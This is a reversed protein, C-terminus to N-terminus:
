QIPYNYLFNNSSGVLLNFKGSLKDLRGISFLTSGTLPFGKQLEGKSNYLYILNKRPAVIGTKQDNAAFEYINPRMSVTEDATISFILTGDQRFAEIKDGDAFIFDNQRDGNVDRFDFFHAPSYKKITQKRISGDALSIFHLTGVTDTMVLSTNHLEIATNNGVPFNYEPQTRTRGQRDLIYVKYKDAFVIYDKNDARHHYIDTQVPHESRNFQWGAVMKGTRDYTYVKRDECAVMIRYDKNKEYDFVSIAGVAPAPLRIPYKDVMNGLRDVLYIHNRTNFLMQLKNNKYADIQCVASLIPDAVPTKWLIRGINNLLYAAGSMDQVFVEMEGTSHNQVLQPKFAIATDLMSEWSTQLGASRAISENSQQKIFINNYWMENSTSLQFVAAHVQSVVEEAAELEKFADPKFVQKFFSGSEAPNCYFMLNCRSAFENSLRGYTLDTQLSAHLATYHLYRKLHEPTAGFLLYNDAVACWEHRGAFLQGFLAGPVDFPIHYATFSLKEDFQLAFRNESQTGTAEIISNQWDEIMAVAASTSKIRFLAFVDGEPSLQGLYPYVQAVENEFQEAFDRQIDLHYTNAIRDLERKYSLDKNNGLYAGYDAFYQSIQQIGMWFFAYTTPPMADTISVPIPQQHQLTALWQDSKSNSATFGNLLLLEPKLNLDLATWDAIHVVPTITQLRDVHLLTQAMRPMQAYNLYLNAAANKGATRMLDALKGQRTIDEGSDLHRLANELLLTSRSFLLYGKRFAYSFNLTADEKRTFAVDTIATKDYEHTSTVAIGAWHQKFANSLRDIAKASMRICGMLRMEDKGVPHLSFMLHGRLLDAMEPKRSFADWQELEDNLQGLSAIKCLQLWFPNEAVLAHFSDWNRIDVIVGADLPIADFHEVNVATEEKLLVFYVSVAAAAIALVVLLIILFNRM